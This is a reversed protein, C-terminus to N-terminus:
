FFSVYDDSDWEGWVKTRSESMDSSDVEDNESYKDWALGVLVEDEADLFDIGFRVCADVNSNWCDLGACFTKAEDIIEVLGVIEYHGSSAAARKAVYLFADDWQGAENDIEVLKDCFSTGGSCGSIPVLLLILSLVLASAKM